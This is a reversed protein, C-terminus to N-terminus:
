VVCRSTCLIRHTVCRAAAFLSTPEREHEDVPHIFTGISVAGWPRDHKAGGNRM